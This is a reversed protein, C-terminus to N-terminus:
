KLGEEQARVKEEEDRKKQQLEEAKIQHATPFQVLAAEIIKKGAGQSPDLIEFEGDKNRGGHLDALTISEHPQLTLRHQNPRKISDDTSQLPLQLADVAQQWQKVADSMEATGGRRNFPDTESQGFSLRPVAYFRKRLQKLRSM